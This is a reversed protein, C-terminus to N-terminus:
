AMQEQSNDQLGKYAADMAEKCVERAYGVSSSVSRHTDPAAGNGEGGSQTVDKLNSLNSEVIRDVLGFAFSGRSVRHQDSGSNATSIVREQIEEMAGDETATAEKAEASPSEPEEAKAEERVPQPPATETPPAEGAEPPKKTKKVRKPRTVEVKEVPRLMSRALEVRMEKKAGIGIRAEVEFSSHDARLRRLRSHFSRISDTRMYSWELSEPHPGAAAAEEARNAPQSTNRPQMTPIPIVPQPQSDKGRRRHQLITPLIDQEAAAHTAPIPPLPLPPLSASPM